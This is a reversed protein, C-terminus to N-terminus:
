QFVRLLSLCVCMISSRSICTCASVCRFASNIHDCACLPLFICKVNQCLTLDLCVCLYFLFFVSAFVCVCVYFCWRGIYCSPLICKKPVNYSTGNGM